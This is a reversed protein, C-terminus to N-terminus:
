VFVLGGSAVALPTSITLSGTITGNGFSNFGGSGVVRFLVAASSVGTGAYFNHNLTSNTVSYIMEGSSIGLGTFQFNGETGNLGIRNRKSVTTPFVLNGAGSFWAILTETTSTAGSYFFHSDTSANVSYKIGTNEMGFGYYQFNNGVGTALVIRRPGVVNNFTLAPTGSAATLNLSTGSAVGLTPTTLTPSTSLVVGGTGTSASTSGTGGNATPLASGSYTIDLTGSSTIPSGTISLFPPVSAAVSTVTGTVPTTWSLSTGNSTLVQGNSGVTTLGTGGNATTLASTLTLPQRITVINSTSISIASNGSGSQLHLQGTSRLVSDGIIANSSYFGASTAFGWENGAIRLGYSPNATRRPNVIATFGTVTM